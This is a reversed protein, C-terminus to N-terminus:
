GVFIMNRGEALDQTFVIGLNDTPRGKRKQVTFEEEIKEVWALVAFERHSDVEAPGGGASPRSSRLLVVRRRVVRSDDRLVGPILHASSTGAGVESM